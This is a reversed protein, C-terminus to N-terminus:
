DFVGVKLGGQVQDNNSCTDDRKQPQMAETNMYGGGEVVRREEGSRRIKWEGHWVGVLCVSRLLWSFRIVRLPTLAPLCASYGQNDRHATSQDSPPRANPPLIKNQHNGNHRAPMCAVWGTDSDPYYHSELQPCGGCVDRDFMSNPIFLAM